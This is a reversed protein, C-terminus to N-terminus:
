GGMPPVMKGARSVIDEQIGCGIRGGKVLPAADGAFRATRVQGVGLDLGQQAPHLPPGDLLGATVEPEGPHELELTERGAHLEDVPYRGDGLGLLVM